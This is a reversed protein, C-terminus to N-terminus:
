SLNNKHNDILNKFNDTTFELKSFDNPNIVLSVIAYLFVKKINIM